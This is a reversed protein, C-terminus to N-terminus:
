PLSELMRNAKGGPNTKKVRHTDFGSDSKVLIELQYLKIKFFLTLAVHSKELIGLPATILGLPWVVELPTYLHCTPKPLVKSLCYTPLTFTCFNPTM